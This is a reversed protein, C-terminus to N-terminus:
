SDAKEFVAWVKPGQQVISVVFPARPGRVFYRQILRKLM